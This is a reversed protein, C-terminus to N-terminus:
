KASRRKNSNQTKMDVFRCNEPSYDGNVDIRDITCEGFKANPNYGHKMAFDRFASYDDRWEDCVAIGRGGYDNFQKYNPNYCRKKIDIWVGYLRDNYGGHKTFIQKNREIKVCGCSTTSGSKLSCAVVTCVNGCDCLCSWATRKRGNYYVIPPAPAIVELRGFRKGILNVFNAM